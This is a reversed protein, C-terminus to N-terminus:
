GRTASVDLFSYGAVIGNIKMYDLDLSAEVASRLHFKFEIGYCPVYAIGRQTVPAWATQTFSGKHSIRYSVAAQLATAVDTGFEMNFITKEKRTGMDFIDTALSFFPIEIADPGVIYTTGNRYRIGTVNDPGTGLSESDPSYVYGNTGDCIYLLRDSEDWSLVPSSLGSLYEKYDLRTLTDGYQWLQGLTDIFWHVKKTGTVANKGAIGLGSLEDLGWNIGKPFMESIGGSGYVIVKDNLKKTEYITGSWEMPRTGAVNSRDQTFDLSGIKSWSVWSTKPSGLIIPYDESVFPVMSISIAESDGFLLGTVHTGVPTLVIDIVEGDAFTVNLWSGEITLSINIVGQDRNGEPSFGKCDFYLNQYAIIPDAM